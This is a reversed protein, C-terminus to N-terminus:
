SITFITANRSLYNYGNYNIYRISRNWGDLVSLYNYATTTVYGVTFVSHGGEEGDFIAKYSLICPKNANLANTFTSYTTSFPTSSSCTYFQDDLYNEAAPGINIVYTGGDDDTGAYSWLTSYLVQFDPDINSYGRSRYYKMLNCLAVVSCAYEYGNSNTDDDCYYTVNNAGTITYGGTKTGAYLNSIVSYGDLGSYVIYNEESDKSNQANQQLAQSKFTRAHQKLDNFQSFSLVKNDLGFIVNKPSHLVHYDNPGISYYKLTSDTINSNIIIEEFPNNVNPEICFESVVPENNSFKIIVYGNDRLNELIDVCFGGISDNEDYFTLINRISWNKEPYINSLFDLAYQSSIKANLSLIKDSSSTNPISTATALPSITICLVISLLLAFIRKM